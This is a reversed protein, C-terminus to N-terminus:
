KGKLIRALNMPAGVRRKGGDAGGAPASKNSRLISVLSSNSRRLPESATRALGSVNPSVETGRVRGGGARRAAAPAARDARAGADGEAAPHDGGAGAGAATTFVFARGSIGSGSTSRQLNGSNQRGLFSFRQVDHGKTTHVAQTAGRAHRGGPAADEREAGRDFRPPAANSILRLVHSSSEDAHADRFSEKVAIDQLVRERELEETFAM